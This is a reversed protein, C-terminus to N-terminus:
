LFWKTALMSLLHVTFLSSTLCDNNLLILISRFHHLAFVDDLVLALLPVFIRLPIIALFLGWSSSLFCDPILYFVVQVLIRVLEDSQLSRTVIVISSSWDSHCVVCSSWDSHCIILQTFCKYFFKCSAILTWYIQTSCFGYKFFFIIKRCVNLLHSWCSLHLYFDM